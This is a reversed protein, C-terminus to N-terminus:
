AVLHHESLRRRLFREATRSEQRHRLSQEIARLRRLEGRGGLRAREEVTLDRIAPVPPTFSPLAIATKFKVRQGTARDALEIHHANVHALRGVRGGIRVLTGIFRDPFHTQDAIEALLPAGQDGDAQARKHVVEAHPRVLRNKM